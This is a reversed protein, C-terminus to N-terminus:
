TLCASLYNQITKELGVYLADCILAHGISVESICGIKSVFYNLNDLNLDHGANVQLGFAHAKEAAQKYLLVVGNRQNTNFLKAYAETYLEIADTGTNRVETLDSNAYDFPDIFLSVRIQNLHLQAIVKQLFAMREGVRWGANSTLVDPSDPVLTVQQPRVKAVLEMLDPSPYGEVNLEVGINESIAIVDQMKIHREDPRPHVTIGQAGFRVIDKTVKLLDPLNTGRSNRLTAIKNVNVSLRTM